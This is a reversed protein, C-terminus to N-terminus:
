DDDDDNDLCDIILDGDVLDANSNNNAQSRKQTARYIILSILFPFIPLTNLVILSSTPGTALVAQTPDNPNVYATISQNRTLDKYSAHLPRANLSIPGDVQIQTSALNKNDVQYTYTLDPAPVYVKAPTPSWSYTRFAHFLPTAFNWALIFSGVFLITAIVCDRVGTHVMFPLSPARSQNAQQSM